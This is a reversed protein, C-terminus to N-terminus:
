YQPVRSRYATKKTRKAELKRHVGKKLPATQLVSSILLEADQNRNPISSRAHLRIGHCLTVFREGVLM